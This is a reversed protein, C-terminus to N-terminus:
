QCAVKPPVIAWFVPRMERLPEPPYLAMREGTVAGAPLASREHALVVHGKRALDAPDIWPTKKLDGDEFIAPFGPVMAALQGGEFFPAVVYRLPCTSKARWDENIRRALERAPYGQVTGNAHLHAMAPSVAVLMAILHCALVPMLALRPPTAEIAGAFMLVLGVSVFQFTQVGWHGPVTAGGSLGVLCVGILPIIFLGEIWPRLPADALTTRGENADAASMARLVWFLLVLLTLSLMRLNVLLFLALRGGQDAQGEGLQHRAYDFTDMHGHLVWWAYPLMVLASVLVALLVGQQVRVQRLAGLRALAWLMGLLPLGAQFKTLMALGSSVGVGLWWWMAGSKLARVLCWAALAICLVLVSNHNFMWARWSFPQQLSWLGLACLAVRRDTLEATLLYTLCGTLTICLAALAYLAGPSVPLVELVLKFLWTPLPPHKPYGWQWSQAWVFQEAMDHPLATNAHWAIAVWIPVTLLLLWFAHGNDRDVRSPIGGGRLRTM